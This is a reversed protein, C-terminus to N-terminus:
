HPGPMVTDCTDVWTMSGCTNTHLPLGCIIFSIKKYSDIYIIRVVVCTVMMGHLLRQIIRVSQPSPPHNTM